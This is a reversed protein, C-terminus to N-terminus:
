QPAVPRAQPSVIVDDYGARHLLEAIRASANDQALNLIGKRVAENRVEGEARLRIRGEMQPDSKRLVGTDRKMVQSRRNDIKTMLIEAPPLNVYVRRGIIRVDSDSMRSLDVGAVVQGVALFTMEDGSIADPLYKFSQKTTSVHMVEMSATELRNLARVKTVIEGVTITKEEPTTVTTMLRKPLTRLAWWGVGAMVM